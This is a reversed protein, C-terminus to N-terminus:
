GGGKKEDAGKSLLMTLFENMSIPLSIQKEKLKKLKELREFLKGDLRIHFSVKKM